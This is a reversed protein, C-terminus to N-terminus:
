SGEMTIKISHAGWLHGKASMEVYAAYEVADDYSRLTKSEHHDDGGRDDPMIWTVVYIWSTKQWKAYIREGEKYEDDTLYEKYGDLAYEGM